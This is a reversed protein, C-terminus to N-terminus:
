FKLFIQSIREFVEMRKSREDFIYWSVFIKTETNKIQM